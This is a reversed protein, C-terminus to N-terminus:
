IFRVELNNNACVELLNAYGEQGYKALFHRKRCVVGLPRRGSSVQGELYAAGKGYYGSNKNVRQCAALTTPISMQRGDRKDNSRSRRGTQSSWVDESHVGVLDRTRFEIGLTAWSIVEGWSTIGEPLLAACREAKQGESLEWVLSNLLSELTSRVAKDCYAGVFRIVQAM